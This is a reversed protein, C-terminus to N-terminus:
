SIRDAHKTGFAYAMLEEQEATKVSSEHVIRGERVVIIRDSMGLIEPMESSVMIIAKGQNALNSILRHIETKAGVDIGRTPEDLILIQPDTLLWRGIIVKQQNGGSLQKMLDNPASYKIMLKEAVSKFAAIDNKPSYFGFKNCIDHFKALTTNALVSINHIAGMRLRDETIMGLGHKVADSPSKIHVKEGNILVEGSTYNDIGFLARMIETRGAGMLGCFGLIEGRQLKFSVDSFVGERTLNRVELLTEGVPAPKKPFMESLERGAIMSILQDMNIEDINFSNIYHGDRYVSLSDCIEFIENLKHSIFIISVGNEKALRRVISFLQKIETDTLASTPEDMIIIKANYSLARALEVLQMQAVSITNILANPNLSLAWEELLQCTAQYRKKISIMGFRTFKSEQGLWINEAVTMTPVLSMEQHIMSVGKALADTPNRFYVPNGDFVVTGSDREYLGILIKMLTSKGAGNEGIVAHIEGRKVTLEVNDLAVVGPFRKSINRMELLASDM